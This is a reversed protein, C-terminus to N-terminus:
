KEFILLVKDDKLLMLTDNQLTFSNVKDLLQLYRDELNMDQQPCAMLTCAM